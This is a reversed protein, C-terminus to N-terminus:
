LAVLLPWCSFSLLLFYLIILQYCYDFSKLNGKSNTHTLNLTESNSLKQSGLDATEFVHGAVLARCFVSNELVKQKRSNRLLETIWTWFKKPFIRNKSSAFIKCFYKPFLNQDLFVRNKLCFCPNQPLFCPNQPWFCPNQPWFCPNGFM